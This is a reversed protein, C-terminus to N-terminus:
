MSNSNTPALEWTMQHHRQVMKVDKRMRRAKIESSLKNDDYKSQFCSKPIEPAISHSLRVDFLACEKKYLKWPVKPLNQQRAGAWGDVGGRQRGGRRRGRGRTRRITRM